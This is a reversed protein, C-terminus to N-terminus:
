IDTICLQGDIVKESLKGGCDVITTRGVMRCRIDSLPMDHAVCSVVIGSNIQHFVATATECLQLDSLVYLEGNGDRDPRANYMRTILEQNDLILQVFVVHEKKCPIGDLEFLAARQELDM